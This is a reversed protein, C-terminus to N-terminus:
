KASMSSIFVRMELVADVTERYFGNPDDVRLLVLTDPVVIRSQGLCANLLRGTQELDAKFKMRVFVEDLDSGGTKSKDRPKVEYSWDSLNLSNGLSGVLSYLESAPFQPDLRRTYFELDRRVNEAEAQFREFQAARSKTEKLKEEATTKEALKAEYAIDLPHLLFQWGAFGLLVLGVILGGVAIWHMRNM